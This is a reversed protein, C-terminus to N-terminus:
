VIIKEKLFMALSHLLCIDSIFQACLYHTHSRSLDMSDHKTKNIPLSAGEWLTAAPRSEVPLCTHHLSTSDLSPTHTYLAHIFIHALIALDM